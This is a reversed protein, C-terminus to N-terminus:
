IMLIVAKCTPVYKSAMPFLMHELGFTPDLSQLRMNLFSIQPYGHQGLHYIRSRQLGSFNLISKVGLYVLM